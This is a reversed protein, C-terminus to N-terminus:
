GKKGSAKPAATQVKPAQEVQTKLPRQLVNRAHQYRINLARSIEGTKMGGAAMARIAASKTGGHKAILQEPTEVVETAPAKTQTTQTAKAM